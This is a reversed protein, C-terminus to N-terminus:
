TAPRKRRRTATTARPPRRTPPLAPELECPVACYVHGARFLQAYGTGGDSSSDRHVATSQIFLPQGTDVLEVGM